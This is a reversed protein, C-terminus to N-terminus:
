MNEFFSALHHAVEKVAAENEGEVMVRALKETGSYRILIRSRPGLKGKAQQEAQQLGTISTMPVKERVRVNLLLQPFRKVPASLESIDKKQERLIQLVKIATLLGDGTRATRTLIVHGSQEGGIAAGTRLMEELVYRDGVATRALQFGQEELAVQLGLNAMVTGVVLRPSGPFELYRAFMYLVDDGDHVKGRSDAFMARDADGDFAIGLDAGCARVTEQLAELHLAGCNLNINRGNPLRHIPQVRAGLSSLFDPAIASMSGNACDVVLRMGALDFDGPLGSRLYELYPQKYAPEEQLLEAPEPEFPAFDSPSELKSKFIETELENEVEDTFKMGTSAFVKIGNDQYPNHSASIMIGAHAGARTTLYSVAPTSLVGCTEPVGGADRIARVLLAQIWPGSIRTDRSILVHPRDSKSALYGALSSGARYITICDLPAVGAVGRIGDTGFLIGM